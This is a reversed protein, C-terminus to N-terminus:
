ERLYNDSLFFFMSDCTIRKNQFLGVKTQQTETWHGHWREKNNMCFTKPINLFYSYRTTQWGYVVNIYVAIFQYICCQYICCQYISRHIRFHSLLFNTRYRAPLKQFLPKVLRLRSETASDIRLQYLLWGARDRLVNSSKINATSKRDYYNRPNRRIIWLLGKRHYPPWKSNWIVIIPHKPPLFIIIQGRLIVYCSISVLSNWFDATDGSLGM